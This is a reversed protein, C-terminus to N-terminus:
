KITKIISTINSEDLQTKITDGSRLKSANKLAIGNEDYTISYGRSLTQLPSLANLTSAHNALQLRQQHLQNNM